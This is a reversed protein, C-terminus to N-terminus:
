ASMTEGTGSEVRLVLLTAGAALSPTVLPALVLNFPFFLVPFLGTMGFGLSEARWRRHWARRSKFDLGRRALPGDTQDMALAHAGWVGGILPGVLPILGLLFIGPSILVFYLAGLLSQAMEWRWGRGSSAVVGTVTREVRCSLRDLIPATLLLALAIGVLLTSMVVGLAVLSRLAAAFWGSLEPPIVRAAADNAIAAGGALGLVLCVAVLISPLAALPWLRPHRVLFFLGTPVYRAGTALRRLASRQL